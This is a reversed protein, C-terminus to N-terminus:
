SASHLKYDVKDISVTLGCPVLKTWPTLNEICVHEKPLTGVRVFLPDDFKNTLINGQPRYAYHPSMSTEEDLFNLSLRM